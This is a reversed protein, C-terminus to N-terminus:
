TAAAPPPFTRIRELLKRKELLLLPHRASSWRAFASPLVQNIISPPTKHVTAPVFQYPNLIPAHV